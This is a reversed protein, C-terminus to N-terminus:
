SAEAIIAWRGIREWSCTDDRCWIREESERVSVKTGGCDPCTADRLDRRPEQFLLATRLESHHWAISKCVRRHRCVCRHKVPRGNEDTCGTCYKTTQDFPHSCGECDVCDELTGWLLDPLHKLAIEGDAGNTYKGLQDAEERAWDLCRQVHSWLDLRSPPRSGPKGMPPSESSEPQRLTLTQPTANWAQALLGPLGIGTQPHPFQSCLERVLSTARQIDAEARSM